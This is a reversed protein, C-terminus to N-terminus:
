SFVMLLLLSSRIAGKGLLGVLREWSVRTVELRGEWTVEFQGEWSVLVVCAARGVFRFLM